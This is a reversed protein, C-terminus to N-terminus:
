KMAVSKFKALPAMRAKNLVLMDGNINYNDATQLAKLFQSEVESAPCAMMTSIGESLSIHNVDSLQYTGSIYNCGGNGSYKNNDDKFIIFPEKRFSNDVKIAKGNLETLLWYQELIAYREKSLIYRGALNGTIKHGNKDLATLVDASVLYSSQQGNPEDLTITNGQSNWSFKGTYETAEGEKGVHKIHQRYSLDKNLNITRQIGECDACPLVGRYIGEWAISQQPNINTTNNPSSCGYGAFFSIAMLISYLLNKKM